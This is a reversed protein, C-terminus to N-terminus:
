GQLGVNKDDGQIFRYRVPELLFKGGMYFSALKLSYYNLAFISREINTLAAYAKCNVFSVRSYGM